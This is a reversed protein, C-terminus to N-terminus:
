RRPTVVASPSALRAGTPDKFHGTVRAWRRTVRLSLKSSRVTRQAIRRLKKGDRRYVRVTLTAGRPRNASRVLLTRGRKRVTLKPRPLRPKAETAPPPPPPPAPPEAVPAPPAATLGSLGISDFAATLDLRGAAATEGLIREAVDPALDPRWTRLAALATATVVAAAGTGLTGRAAAGTRPDALDISCGPAVIAARTASTPCPQGTAADVAGVSFAGQVNAPSGIPRGNFDGGAIVVNLDNLRATLVADYLELADDGVPVAETAATVVIVKIGRTESWVDCQRIGEAFGVFNYRDEGPINSQYSVIRAQPWLGVVGFGNARGGILMALRTGNLTPSRDTGDLRQLSLRQIVGATDPNANIGTGVFCIAAPERPPTARLLFDMRAAAAQATPVVEDARAPSALALALLCTATVLRRM